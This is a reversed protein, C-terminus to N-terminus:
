ARLYGNAKFWSLADCIAGEVPSRPYDLERIAKSCDYQQAHKLMEIFFGPVQAPERLIMRFVWDGLKSGYRALQFPVPFLPAKVGAEPAILENLHRKAIMLILTGSSPRSDYPGFFNGPNVGAAPVGERAASLVAEEMAAKAMLDPNDQYASAFPCTEDALRSECGQELANM